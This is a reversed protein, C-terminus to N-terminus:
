RNVKIIDMGCRWCDFDIRYLGSPNRLFLPVPLRTMADKEKMCAGLERRICYRTQMVRIEGAPRFVEIAPQGIRAGHSQYFDRASKNAVNDHYTLEPADAFADDTLVPKRRRDFAYTAEAM